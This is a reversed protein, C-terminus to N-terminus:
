ILVSAAPKRGIGIDDTQRVVGVKRGERVFKTMPIKRVEPFQRLKVPRVFTKLFVGVRNQLFEPQLRYFLPIRKPKFALAFIM